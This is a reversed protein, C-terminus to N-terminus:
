ISDGLDEKPATECALHIEAQPDVQVLPALAKVLGVISAAFDPDTRAFDECADKTAFLKVKDGPPSYHRKDLTSGKSDTVTATIEFPGAPEDATLFVTDAIQDLHRIDAKLTNPALAAFLCLALLIPALWKMDNRWKLWSIGEVNQVDFRHYRAVKCKEGVTVLEEIEEAPNFYETGDGANEIKLYLVQPFKM